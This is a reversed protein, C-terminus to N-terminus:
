QSQLFRRSATNTCFPDASCSCSDDVRTSGGSFYLSKFRKNCQLAPSWTMEQPSQLFPNGYACGTPQQKLVSTSHWLLGVKWSMHAHISGHKSHFGTCIITASEYKSKPFLVDVINFAVNVAAAPTCPNTLECRKQTEWQM